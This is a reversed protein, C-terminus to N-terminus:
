DIAEMAYHWAQSVQERVSPDPQELLYTTFGTASTGHKGAHLEYLVGTVKHLLENIQRARLADSQEPAITNFFCRGAITLNHALAALFRVRAEPSLAAYWASAEDPQPTRLQM